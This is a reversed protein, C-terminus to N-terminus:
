RGVSAWAEALDAVTQFRNAPAEEVARGAVVFMEESGRFAERTPLGHRPAGLWILAMRGLTFVTTREDIIAGWVFEEPAMVSTSGLQRDGELVYPGAVYHDLDILHLRREDFDYVVSGDYLDVAVFGAAAVAVHADILETVAAALESVPLTLFRSYPSDPDGRPPIAPNFGDALVSGKALEEVLALGTPTRITTLVTPIAPHSVAEHFCAANELSAIAEPQEAYKVVVVTDGIRVLYIQTHSDSREGFTGEIHGISALYDELRQHIQAALGMAPGDTSM